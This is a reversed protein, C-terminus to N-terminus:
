CKSVQYNLDFLLNSPLSGTEIWIDVSLYENIILDAVDKGFAEILLTIIINMAVISNYHKEVTSFSIADMTPLTTKNPCIYYLCWNKKVSFCFWVLLIVLLIAYLVLLCWDFVNPVAINDEVTTRCVGAMIIGIGLIWPIFIASLQNVVWIAIFCYRLCTLLTLYMQSKLKENKDSMTPQNAWFWGKHKDYERSISFGGVVLKGIPNNNWIQDIKKIGSYKDLYHMQSEIRKCYEMDTWYLLDDFNKINRYLNKASQKIFITFMVDREIESKLQEDDDDAADPSCLKKEVFDYHFAENEFKLNFDLTKTTISQYSEKSKHSRNYDDQKQETTIMHSNVMVDLNSKMENDSDNLNYNYHKHKMMKYQSNDIIAYQKKLYKVTMETTDPDDTWIGFKCIIYNICCLRLLCDKDDISNNIFLMCQEWFTYAYRAQMQYIYHQGTCAKEDDLISNKYCTVCSKWIKNPLLQSQFLIMQLGHWLYPPIINLNFVTAAPVLFIGIIGFLTALWWESVQLEERVLNYLNVIMRVFFWCYGIIIPGIILYLWEVSFHLLVYPIWCIILYMFMMDILLSLHNFVVRSTSFGQMIMMGYSKSGDSDVLLCRMALIFLVDFIISIYVLTAFAEFEAENHHKMNCSVALLKIM